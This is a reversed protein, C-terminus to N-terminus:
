SLGAGHDLGADIPTNELRADIDTKHHLRQDRQDIVLEDVLPQQAIQSEVWSILGVAVNRERNLHHEVMDNRFFLNLFSDSRHLDYDLVTCGSALLLQRGTQGGLKLLIDLTGNYRNLPSGLLTFQCYHHVSLLDEGTQFLHTVGLCAFQDRGTPCSASM